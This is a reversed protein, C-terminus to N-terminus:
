YTNAPTPACFMWERAREPTVPQNPNVVLDQGHAPTSAPPRRSPGRHPACRRARRSDATGFIQTALQTGYPIERIDGDAQMRYVPTQYRLEFDAELRRRPRGPPAARRPHDGSRHWGRRARSRDRLIPAHRGHGFWPRGQHRTDSGAHGPRIARELDLVLVGLKLDDAGGRAWPNLGRRSRGALM